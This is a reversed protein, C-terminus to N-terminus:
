KKEDSREEGRNDGVAVLLGVDGAAVDGAM